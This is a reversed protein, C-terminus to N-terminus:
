YKNAYVVGSDVWDYGYNADGISSESHHNIGSRYPRRSSLTYTTKSETIPSVADTRELFQHHGFNASPVYSVSVPLVSKRPEQLRSLATSLGVVLLM